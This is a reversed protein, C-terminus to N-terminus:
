MSYNQFQLIIFKFNKYERIVSINDELDVYKLLNNLRSSKSYTTIESFKESVKNKSLVINLFFNKILFSCLISFRTPADAVDAVPVSKGGRKLIHRCKLRM